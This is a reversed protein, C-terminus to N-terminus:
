RGTGGSRRSIVACARCRQARALKKEGGCDPCILNRPRTGVYVTGYVSADHCRRCRLAKRVKPGGCDPCTVAPNGRFLVRQDLMWCDRCLRAKTNKPGGCVPCPGSKLEYPRVRKPHAAVYRCRACRRSAQAKLEGCDPCVFAPAAVRELPAGVVFLALRRELEGADTRVVEDHGCAWCLEEGEPRYRSLRCGCRGCDGAAVTTRRKAAGIREVVIAADPVSGTRLLEVRELHPVQSSLRTVDAARGFM